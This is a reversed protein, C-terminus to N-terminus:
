APVAPLSSCPDVSSPPMHAQAAAHAPLQGETQANALVAAPTCWCASPASRNLPLAPLSSCCPGVAAPQFTVRPLWKPQASGKVRRLAGAPVLAAACWCGSICGKHVPLAPLSSCCPDVDAPHFTPSPLLRPQASGKLRRPAGAPVAAPAGGCGAMAPGGEAVAEAGAETAPSGPSAQTSGCLQQCHM